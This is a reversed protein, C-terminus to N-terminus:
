IMHGYFRKPNNKFGSLIRKRYADEDSRVMGNVENRIKKYEEYNKEQDSNYTGKGPKVVNRRISKPQEPSTIRRGPNVTWKSHYTNRL